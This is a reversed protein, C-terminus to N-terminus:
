KFGKKGIQQGTKAGCSPCYPYEYMYRWTAGCEPCQRDLPEGCQQCFSLEGWTPAGCRPCRFSGKAENPM